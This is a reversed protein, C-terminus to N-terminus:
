PRRSPDDVGARPRRRPLDFSLFGCCAQEQRTLARLRDAVERDAAFRMQLTTEDRSWSALHATLATFEALRGPREDATLTCAVVSEDRRSSAPTRGFRVTADALDPACCQLDSACEDPADGAALREQVETLQDAFHELERIQEAIATRKADLLGALHEQTPGCNTGDWIGVLDTIEELSLGLRKARTIFVLRAEAGADYIRYGSASREPSPVLGIREYYRVTSTPVGGRRALESIRLGVVLM